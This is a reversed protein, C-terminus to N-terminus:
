RGLGKKRSSWFTMGVVHSHFSSRLHFLFLKGDNKFPKWYLLYRLGKQFTLTRSYSYMYQLVIVFSQKQYEKQKWPNKMFTKVTRYFWDSKHMHYVAVSLIKIIWVKGKKFFNTSMDPNGFDIFSLFCPFLNVWQRELKRILTKKVFLLM